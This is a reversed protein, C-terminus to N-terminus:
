KEKEYIFENVKESTSKLGYLTHFEKHCSVCFTIGNEVVTRLDKNSAYDEIHHANLPRSKKNGCKRCTYNDREYVAKRWDGYGQYSRSLLGNLLREEDTRNPNWRPSKERTRGFMPNKDGYRHIGFMPNKDGKTSESMKLKSEESHHKGLMPTKGIRAEKMKRKTEESFVRGKQAIRMREKSEESHKYGKKCM